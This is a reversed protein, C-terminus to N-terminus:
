EDDEDTFAEMDWCPTFDPGLIDVKIEDGDATATLIARNDIMIHVAGPYLIVNTIELGVLLKNLSQQSIPQPDNM